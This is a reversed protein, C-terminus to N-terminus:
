MGLSKLFDDDSMETVQKATSTAVPASVVEVKPTTKTEQVPTIAPATVPSTQVPTGAVGVTKLDTTGGASAVSATVMETTSTTEEDSDYDDGDDSGSDGSDTKADLIEDVARAGETVIRQIEESTPKKYLKHLEVAEDGLRSITENDLKHVIDREVEGVGEVRLKEKLVSVKFTTDLASGERRFVFFRGNDVSLPDIGAKRLATIESDLAQKARHRLKLVGINGQTDMVNMYHNSDLNFQGKPGVLKMLREVMPGNKEDQATKLQAKLKEIRELAADPVEVMKTKNNKVLSSQFPRLKDKSNKYGYHVKYYMSWRGDDALEGIPPLIRFTVEGDKMKWYKKQTFGYKAKGIKM